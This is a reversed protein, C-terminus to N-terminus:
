KVFRHTLMLFAGKCTEIKPKQWLQKQRLGPNSLSDSRSLAAGKCAECNDTAPAAKDQTRSKGSQRLPPLTVKHATARDKPVTANGHEYKVYQRPAV